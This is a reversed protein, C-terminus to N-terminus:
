EKHRIKIYLVAEAVIFTIVVLIIPKLVTNILETQLFPSDCRSFNIITYKYLEYINDIVYYLAMPVVSIILKNPIFVSIILTLMAVFGSELSRRLILILYYPLKLGQTLLNSATNAGENNILVISKGYISNETGLWTQGLYISVIFTALIVALAMCLFAITFAQFTRTLSYKFKGMRCVQMNYVNNQVDEAYLTAAVCSPISVAFGYLVNFNGFFDVYPLVGNDSFIEYANNTEIGALLIYTITSLMVAIWFLPQGFIRHFESRISHVKTRM